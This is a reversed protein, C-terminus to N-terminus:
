YRRRVTKLSASYRFNSNMQIENGQENTLDKLEVEVVEFTLFDRSDLSEDM